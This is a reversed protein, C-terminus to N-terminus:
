SKGILILLLVLINSDNSLAINNSSQNIRGFITKVTCLNVYVHVSLYVLSKPRNEQSDYRLQSDNWM